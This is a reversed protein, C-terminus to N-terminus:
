KGELFDQQSLFNDCNICQYGQQNKKMAGGCTLCQILLIKRKKNM